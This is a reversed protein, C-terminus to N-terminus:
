SAALRGSAPRNLAYYAFGFSGIAALPTPTQLRNLSHM